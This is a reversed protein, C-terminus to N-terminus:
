LLVAYPSLQCAALYGGARGRHLGLAKPFAACEWSTELFVPRLDLRRDTEGVEIRDEVTPYCRIATVLVPVDYRGTLVAVPWFLFVAPTVGFYLPLLTGEM